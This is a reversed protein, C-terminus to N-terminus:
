RIRDYGDIAIANKFDACSNCLLNGVDIIVKGLVCDCGTKEVDMEVPYGAMIHHISGGIAKPLDTM